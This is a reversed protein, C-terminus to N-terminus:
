INQQSKAPNRFIFINSRINEYKTSDLDMLFKHAKEDELHKHFAKAAGCTCVPLNLYSDVEDWLEKLKTFYETVSFNGQGLLTIERKLQHIRISSGQSFREKLEDWIAKATAQYTISSHLKKDIVSYLWGIVMSYCKEWAEEEPLDKPPKLLKDNVFGFKNKSKLANTVMRSWTVPCIIYGPQDSSSLFYPSHPDNLNIEPKPKIIEDSDKNKPEENKPGEGGSM